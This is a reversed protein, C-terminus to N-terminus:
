TLMSLSATSVAASFGARKLRVISSIWPRRLHSSVCVRWTRHLRARDPVDEFAFQLQSSPLQHCSIAVAFAFQQVNRRTSM